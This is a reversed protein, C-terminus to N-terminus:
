IHVSTNYKYRDIYTVKIFYVYTHCYKINIFLIACLNYIMILIDYLYRGVALARFLFNQNRLGVDSNKKVCNFSLIIVLFIYM